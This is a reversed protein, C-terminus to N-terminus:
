EAWFDVLVPKDSKLVLQEFNADTIEIAMNKQKKNILKKIEKQNFLMQPLIMKLIMRAKANVIPISAIQKFNITATKTNTM